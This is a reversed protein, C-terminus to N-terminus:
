IHSREGNSFIWFRERGALDNRGEIKWGLRDAAERWVKGQTEGTELLLHGGPVLVDKAQSLLKLILDTGDPGSFLALPPEFNRVEAPLDEKEEAYLQSITQWLRAKNQTDKTALAAISLVEILRQVTREHREKDSKSAKGAAAAM